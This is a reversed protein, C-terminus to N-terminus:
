LGPNDSQAVCDKKILLWSNQINNLNSLDNISLDFLYFLCEVPKSFVLGTFSISNNLVNYFLTNLLEKKLKLKKKRQKLWM